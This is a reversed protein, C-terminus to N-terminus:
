ALCSVCDHRQGDQGPLITLRSYGHAPYRLFLIHRYAKQLTNEQLQAVLAHQHALTANVATVTQGPRRTLDLHKVHDQGHTLIHAHYGAQVDAAVRKFTFEAQVTVVATDPTHKAFDLLCDVVIKRGSGQFIKNLIRQYYM